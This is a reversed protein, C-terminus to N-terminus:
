LFILWKIPIDVSIVATKKHNVSQENTSGPNGNKDNKKMIQFLYRILYIIFVVREGHDGYIM